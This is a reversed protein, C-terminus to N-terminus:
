WKINKMEIKKNIMQSLLEYIVSILPMGLIMGIIGFLNGGVVIALLIWLPSLGLSNGVVFPYVFKGDLQQIIFVLVLFILGMMWEPVDKLKLEYIFFIIIRITAIVMGICATYTGLFGFSVAICFNSIITITLQKKKTGVFYSSMVLLVAIFGIIQSIIYRTTIIEPFM